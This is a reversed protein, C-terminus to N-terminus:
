RRAKVIPSMCRRGRRRSTRSRTESGRKGSVSEVTSPDGLPDSYHSTARVRPQIRSLYEFYRSKIFWLSSTHKFTHLPPHLPALNQHGLIVGCLRHVFPPARSLELLIRSTDPHSHNASLKQENENSSPVHTGSSRPTARALCNLTSCRM